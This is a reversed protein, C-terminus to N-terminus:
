KIQTLIWRLAANRAVSDSDSERVKVVEDVKVGVGHYSYGTFDFIQANTFYYYWGNQLGYLQQGIGKGYTHDSNQGFLRARDRLAFPTVEAASASNDDLLIALPGDFTMGVPLSTETSISRRYRTQWLSGQKFVSMVIKADLVSGGGNSRLDLIVAKAGQNVLDKLLQMFEFGVGFSFGPIRIYAVTGSLLTGTVLPTQRTRFPIEVTFTKDFRRFLYTIKGSAMSEQLAKFESAEDYPVMSYGNIAMVQDGYRLDIAASPSGPITGIVWYDHGDDEATIVGDGWESLGFNKIFAPLSIDQAPDSNIPVPSLPIAYPDLGRLFGYLLVFFIQRQIDPQGETAEFIPKLYRVAAGLQENDKGKFEPIPAPNWTRSMGLSATLLEALSKGSAFLANDKILMAAERYSALYRETESPAQSNAALAPVLLVAALFLAAIRLKM